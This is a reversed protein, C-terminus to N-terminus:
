NKIIAMSCEDGIPIKCLNDGIEEEFKIIAQKVGPLMPHFYDHILIAGGKCMKPYFFRLGELIPQYLDMDLMVFCFKDDLGKATEPFYGKKIICKEPHPMKAIVIDELMIKSHEKDSFEFTCGNNFMGKLFNKNGFAREIEIDRTDFGIFTDFLYLKRNSFYKNIYYSFEGKFVGCEAVNGELNMEKVYRSFARLWAVRFDTNEDYTNNEEIFIRKIIESDSALVYIKEEPVGLDDLQKRMAVINANKISAIVLLDYQLKNIESPHFINEAGYAGNDIFGIIEIDKRNNKIYEKYLNGVEGAGFILIKMKVM